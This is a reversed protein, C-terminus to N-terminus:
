ELLTFNIKHPLPDVYATKKTWIKYPVGNVDEETMDWAGELNVALFGSGGDVLFSDIKSGAGPLKIVPTGGLSFSIEGSSQNFPILAQEDSNIYWPYTTTITLTANVSGAEIRQNTQNGRDDVLYDGEMYTITGIHKYIGLQNYGTFDEVKVSNFTVVETKSTQEGADGQSFNLTPELSTGVKIIKDSISYYAYPRRLTPITSPFVLIDIIDIISKNRLSGVTTGATIGGIKNPATIADNLSSNYKLSGDFTNEINTIRENFSNVTNSLNELNSSISEQFQSVGEKFSNLDSILDEIAKGKQEIAQTFTEEIQSVQEQLSNHDTILKEISNNLKIYDEKHNGYDVITDFIFDLAQKVTKIDEQTVTTYPINDKAYNILDKQLYDILDKQLEIFGQINGWFLDNEENIGLNRRAKAKDAETRFEAFYNSRLLPQPANTQVDVDRVSTYVTQAM